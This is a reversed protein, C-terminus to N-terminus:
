PQLYALTICPASNPHILRSLAEIHTFISQYYHIHNVIDAHVQFIRLFESHTQHLVYVFTVTCITSCNDLCLLLRLLTLCKRHLRKSFAPPSPGKSLPVEYYPGKKWFWSVRKSKWFSCPHGGREESTWRM